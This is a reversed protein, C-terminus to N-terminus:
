WVLHPFVIKYQKCLNGGETNSVTVQCYMKRNYKKKIYSIYMLPVVVDIKETFAICFNHDLLVLNDM